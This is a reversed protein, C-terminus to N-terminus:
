DSKHPARMGMDPASPRDARERDVTPFKMSAFDAKPSSLTGKLTLEFPKGQQTAFLGSLMSLGMKQLTAPSLNIKTDLDLKSRELPKLLDVTGEAQIDLGPGSLSLTKILAVDHDFEAILETSDLDIRPLQFDDYSFNRISTAATRLIFQGSTISNLDLTFHSKLSLNGTMTMPALFLDLAQLRLEPADFAISWTRAPDPSSTRLSFNGGWLDGRANMVLNGFMLHVLSFSGRVSTLTVPVEDGSLNNVMYSIEAARFQLMPNLSLESMEIKGQSAIKLDHSIKEIIQQRPLKLVLFMLLGVVFIIFLGASELAIPHATLKKLQM